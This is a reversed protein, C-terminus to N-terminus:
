LGCPAKFRQRMRWSLKIPRSKKNTPSGVHGFGSTDRWRNRNKRSRLTGISVFENGDRQKGPNTEQERQRHHDRADSANPGLAELQQESVTGTAATGASRYLYM